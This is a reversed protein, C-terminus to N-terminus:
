EEEQLEQEGSIESDDDMSFTSEAEENLFYLDGEVTTGVLEFNEEQVYLDGVFTGHQISANPSNITFKPATLTYRETINRNSDQSYLAVKRQIIDNGDDDKKGNTYEGDLTIDEEITIDKTLAILWTGEDSIAEKFLEANDVISATTVVDPETEPPTTQPPSTDPSECGALLTIFVIITLILVKTKM